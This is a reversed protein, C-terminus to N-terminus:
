SKERQPAVGPVKRCLYVCEEFDLRYYDTKQPGLVDQPRHVEVQFGANKLRDEYDRGYIRVHDEQGFERLRDVPAAIDPDEYTRERSHDVPVQLIAWGNPSLVRYLESLAAADDSIHELVHCCLIGDFSNDPFSIQTLDMYVEAPPSELGASLYAVQPISKLLKEFHREPAVHLIRQGPRLLDPRTQFFLWLLRHRELSGCSPCMTNPKQNVGSPWFQRATYGCCPCTYATGRYRLLLLRRRVSTPFKSWLHRLTGALM